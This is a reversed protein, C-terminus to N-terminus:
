YEIRKIESHRNFVHATKLWEKRLYWITGQICRNQRRSTVIYPDRIDFNFIQDWSEVIKFRISEPYDTMQNCKGHIKEYEDCEKCLQKDERKGYIGWNLLPLGWLAFDSLLVQDEPVDLELMVAEEQRFPIDHPSMPPKTKKRSSYQQWVWLPYKIGEFIPMGVRKRMQGAMWDYQFRYDCCMKSERDCYAIGNHLLDEYLEIRQITYIRM